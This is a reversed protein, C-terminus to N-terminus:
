NKREANSNYVEDNLLVWFLFDCPNLDLSRALRIGSGIIRTQFVDFLAQMSIRVTHATTSGQKRIYIQLPNGLFSTYMNHCITVYAGMALCLTCITVYAGM